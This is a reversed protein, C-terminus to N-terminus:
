FSCTSVEEMRSMIWNPPPWFLKSFDPYNNLPKICGSELDFVGIDQDHEQGSLSFFNDVFIICNGRHMQLDYASVSFACDEGLFLVQDSLNNVEIWTKREEDLKFVKFMVTRESMCCSLQQELFDDFFNSDVTTDISLYMDVLLLGGKCEVLYKKDGGFVPNAVITTGFGMDVFVTRGTHDVAYFKGKYLMVDDYPSPMQQLITWKKDKSTFMALKGSVHITLLVFDSGGDLYMLVVKEMYLSGAQNGFNMYNLVYEHGIELIGLNGIDLVKDFNKLHERKLPNLLRKRDPEDEDIKVLWSLTPEAEDGSQPSRILFVTRRSLEFGFSSNLINNGVSNEELLPFRNPLCRRKPKVSSRWASCISRFRLLDVSTDFCKAILDLLDPPLQSWNAM